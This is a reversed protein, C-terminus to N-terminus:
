SGALVFPAMLLIEMEAKRKKIVNIVLLPPLWDSMCYLIPENLRTGRCVILAAIAKGTAANKHALHQVDGAEESLQQPVTVTNIQSLM